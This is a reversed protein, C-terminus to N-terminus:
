ATEGLERAIEEVERDRRHYGMREVMAKAMAWHERALTPDGQALGLRAWELHCDCLHLGMEGREAIRQAEALDSQAHHYDGTLRYMEARALLGRPLYDMRGAQRLRNVARLLFDVAAAYDGTGQAHRLSARGLTLNDLAIDLLWNQTTLWELTQAARDRVERLRGQEMLLECYQFGQVSYLLPYAPQREEQLAEAKRFAAEAEAMQGAQHLADALTTRSAMRMFSDGSRDALEVSQQAFALSQPVEGLTLYLESLNGARIVAQKWDKQSVCMELSSRMPHVAEKLRGLARLDFGAQNLVFAQDSEKLGAVPQQWPTAFFGPLAALDAGFAGLKRTTFFEDGRAIRRWYVDDLVEQHRGAACGHAVAAFLPSMEEVTNPFKKTVASLHQYLRQNAERWAAPHDRKVQRGFHERVLPYTDLAQSEGSSTASTASNDALLKLRRLRALAQRWERESLKQLAETLGTIAPAARLVNVALADAPRDFVGLIRLIALEPGDGLWKEYSTIVRRAHGGRRADEELSEIRDRRRVDGGCVDKLYSGLLILALSHGGFEASAAELETDDGRVGQARLIQAGAQPSLHDLDEQRVTSQAFGELDTIKVRTSIVCLGRQQAALERLLAQLAQDKLKGEDPGPPHQLPELGDLVLLTRTRRILNALREGKDWPSGKTPDKDGFWRLAADIFLDASAAREDSTGQSYFSWAYVREAGRYQDKALRALWTNVLASKGVGGWAVFTVINTNPDAWADDLLKLEADRGFLDPSTVPLRSISIKVQPLPLAQDSDRDDAQTTIVVWNDKPFITVKVRGAQEVVTPIPFDLNRCEEIATPLGEGRGEFLKINYIANALSPNRLQSEGKLDALQYECGEELMRGFWRGPSVIEIRNSFVRIQVVEGSNAYDRHCLANAITERLCNVPYQYVIKLDARNARRVEKKDINTVVFDYAQDIQSQISGDFDVKKKAIAGLRDVGDYVSCKTIASPSYKTPGEAFLLLGTLTLMGNKM